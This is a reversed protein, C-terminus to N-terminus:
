WASYDFHFFTRPNEYILGRVIQLYRERSIVSDKHFLFARKNRSQVVFEIRMPQRNCIPQVKKLFSGHTYDIQLVNGVDLSSILMELDAVAYQLNIPKTLYVTKGNNDCFWVKYYGHKNMILVM